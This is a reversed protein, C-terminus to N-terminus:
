NSESHTSSALPGEWSRVITRGEWGHPTVYQGKYVNVYQSYRISTIGEIASSLALYQQFSEESSFGTEVVLDAFGIIRRVSRTSALGSLEHAVRDICGPQCDVLAILESFPGFRDANILAQIHIYEEKLLRRVRARITSEAMGIKRAIESNSERGDDLLIQLIKRDVEDLQDRAPRPM